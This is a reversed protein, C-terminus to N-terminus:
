FQSIVLKPSLNCMAQISGPSSLGPDRAPYDAVVVESGRFSVLSLLGSACATGSNDYGDNEGHKLM